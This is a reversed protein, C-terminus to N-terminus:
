ETSAWRISRHHYIIEPEDRVPRILVNEEPYGSEIRELLDGFSLDHDVLHGQFVAVYEGPYQELWAAHLARFAEIEREWEDPVDATELLPLGHELAEVVVEQLQRDQSKALRRARELLRNPIVLSQGSGMLVM